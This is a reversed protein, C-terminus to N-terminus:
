DTVLQGGKENGVAVGYMLALRYEAYASRPNSYQVLLVSLGTDPNTVVSVSGYSDSPGLVTTWDNPIRAQM